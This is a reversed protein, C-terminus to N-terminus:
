NNTSISHVLAKSEDTLSGDETLIPTDILAKISLAQAVTSAIIKKGNESYQSYDYGEESVVKEMQYLLPLFRSDLRALLSYYMYSRRRIAICQDGGARLQTEIEEAQAMNIKAEELNKGAKAGVIIGMTLIAAGAVLGGLVCTGGAVGIGGATLSGGGFFALTANKAAIGSLTSIATGTSAHAFTTAASYAGFATMAGGAVGALGGQAISSAFNVLEGMEEIDINDIALKNNELLNLSENVDVNKIQTFLELFRSINGDLVFVKQKGLESLSDDCQKRLSELRNAAFEIKESAQANLCKAKSHDIGAKITKGGGVTGSVAAIGICVAVIPFPM